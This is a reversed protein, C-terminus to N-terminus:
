LIALRPRARPMPICLGLIIELLQPATSRKKLINTHVYTGYRADYDYMYSRISLSLIEVFLLLGVYIKM